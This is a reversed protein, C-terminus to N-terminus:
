LINALLLVLGFATVLFGGLFLALVGFWNLIHGPGGAGALGQSFSRAYVAMLALSGVTIGTGIGMAYSALVGAWFVKQSLAFVLVILAGSCPRLGTSFVLMLLGWRGKSHEMAEVSPIHDDHCHPAGSNQERMERFAHWSRMLLWLGLLVFMSYSAVQLTAATKTIVISTLNLLIAAISILVVATTAQVTANIMALLAGKRANAGTAFMYTTLVVKGHGPGAAHFIGYAFALGLLSWLAKPSTEVLKVMGQLALYFESQKALIWRQIAGLFGSTIVKSTSDPVAVGFPSSVAYASHVWLSFVILALAAAYFVSGHRRM